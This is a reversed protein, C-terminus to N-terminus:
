RRATVGALGALFDSVRPGWVLSGGEGHFFYHGDQEWPPLMTMEAVGGASIFADFLAGALSPGFFSDNGAYLWLMPVRATAGFEAVNEILRTAACNTRARGGAWGGRGGAVNIVAAVGPPRQAALAISGWGGASEGLVIAGTARIGPSGLLARLAAQIDRATERGVRLFDPDECPGFGEVWDGTSAGHGRRLVAAATYGQATFWRVAEANCAPPLLLPRIEARPQAGHNILVLPQEGGGSAPCVRVQLRSGDPGDIVRLEDAMAPWALLLLACFWRM